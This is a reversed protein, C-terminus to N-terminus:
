GDYDFGDLLIYALELPDHHLSTHYADWAGLHVGSDPIPGFTTVIWSSVGKSFHRAVTYEPIDGAPLDFPDPCEAARLATALKEAKRSTRTNRSTNPTRTPRSAM